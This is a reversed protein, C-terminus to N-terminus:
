LFKQKVKTKVVLDVTVSQAVVLSINRLSFKLRRDYSAVIQNEVDACVNALPSRNEGLQGPSDDSELRLSYADPV